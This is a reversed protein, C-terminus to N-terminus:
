SAARTMAWMAQPHPRAPQFTRAHVVHPALTFRLSAAPHHASESPRTDTARLILAWAGHLRSNRMRRRHTHIHPPPHSLNGWVTCSWSVDHLVSIPCRACKEMCATHPRKGCTGGNRGPPAGILRSVSHKEM